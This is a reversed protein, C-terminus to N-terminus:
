TRVRGAAPPTEREARALKRREESRDAGEVLHELARHRGLSQVAEARAARIRAALEGRRRRAARIRSEAWIERM